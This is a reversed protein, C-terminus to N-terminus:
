YNKIVKLNQSQKGVYRLYYIGASLMRFDFSVRHGHKNAPISLLQGLNNYWKIANINIAPDTINVELFDHIMNGNLLEFVPTQKVNSIGVFHKNTKLQMVVPLHDSMNYLRQRLSLSYEGDCEYADVRNNFCNGNNGYAKYSDQIYQLTGFTQELNRSIMIYDFRDDLGGSAGGTGFGASSIRTAQTHITRFSDNDSWKGPAHIPDVMIIPNSTDVIKQYAKENYASYFNFDGAFLVYHDSPVSALHSFFTDVMGLRLQRNSPGESSKLHTVFVELFTSDTAADETNLLFTYHNIDRVTTPYVQQKLLILKSANYFVTQQLSDTAGSQTYVFVARKYLQKGSNNLSTYLIRDAGDENVLESVMFIDPHNTDLIDKLIYERNAPPMVPFRYLNYFMTRITDQGYTTIGMLIFLCLCKIKM